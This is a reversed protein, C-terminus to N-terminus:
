TSPLLAGLLSRSRRSHSLADAIRVRLHPAVLDARNLKRARDSRAGGNKTDCTDVIPVEIALNHLLLEDADVTAREGWWTGINSSQAAAWYSKRGREGIRQDPDECFMDLCEVNESRLRPASRDFPNESAEETTLTTKQGGQKPTASPELEIPAHRPVRAFCSQTCCLGSQQRVPHAINESHMQLFDPLTASRGQSTLSIASMFTPM